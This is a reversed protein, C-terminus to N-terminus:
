EEALFHVTDMSAKILTYSGYDVTVAGTSNVTVVGTVWGVTSYIAVAFQRIKKPRYGKPLTFVLASSAGSTLNGSFSVTNLADKTYQFPLDVKWGNLLTPTIWAPADKEAKKLEVVSVRQLAEAVGATLDSIQAKENVALSGNIPQILSKNLKIYNVSYAAAPDYTFKKTFIYEKGHSRSDVYRTWASDLQSNRYVALFRDVKNDLTSRASGAVNLNAYVDGNIDFGLKARERLVIGTGVEILNGGENLRLSGESVIPEVTEKALRYLLQYESWHNTGVNDPIKTTPLTASATSNGNGWEKISVWYKQGTGPYLGVSGDYMKWGMFYAKIEDATPTYSEGWGSDNDAISIYVNNDTYFIQMNATTWNGVSTRKLAFGDYKTIYGTDAVGVSSLPARVIRYKHSATSGTRGANEWSLTGDLIAKKWKALKFYQGEREFLVDPDSGDAPNAHLETQLALMTDRRSKFPKADSGLALMPNKFRFTGTKNASIFIRFKNTNPATTFGITPTANTVAHTLSLDFNDKLEAVNVFASASSGSITDCTLTYQKGPLAPVDVYQAVYAAPVTLEIEYPNIVKGVVGNQTYEYFPPLLNEGYGIAYPSDLGAIGPSVFPYKEAVQAYSITALYTAEQSTIEYVCVSDFSIFGSLNGVDFFCGVGTETGDAVFTMCSYSYTDTSIKSPGSFSTAVRRVAIRAGMGPNNTKAYLSVLYTKGATLTIPAYRAYSSGMGTNAWTARIGKTGTHADETTAVFYTPAASGNQANYLAENECDGAPGFVNILTRGKIEGLRFRSDRKANVVQLGPQLTIDEYEAFNLREELKSIGTGQRNIESGLANMDEPQVTDHLKWDTKAM